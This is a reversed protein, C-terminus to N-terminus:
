VFHKKESRNEGSMGGAKIPMLVLRLFGFPETDGGSVCLQNTKAADLTLGTVKCLM